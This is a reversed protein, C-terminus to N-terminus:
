RCLSVVFFPIELFYQAFFTSIEGALFIQFAGLVFQNYNPPAKFTPIAVVLPILVFYLVMRVGVSITVLTRAEVKGWNNNVVDTVLYSFGFLATGVLFKVGFLVGIKAGLIPAVCFIVTQLAALWLLLKTQKNM